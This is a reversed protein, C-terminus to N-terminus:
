ADNPDFLGQDYAGAISRPLVARGEKLAKELMTHFNTAPFPYTRGLRVFNSSSLCLLILQSNLSFRAPSNPFLVFKIADIQQRLLIRLADDEAEDLFRLLVQAALFYSDSCLSSYPILSDTKRHSIPSSTLGLCSSIRVFPSTQHRILHSRRVTYAPSPSLSLQPSVLQENSNPVRTTSTSTTSSYDLM